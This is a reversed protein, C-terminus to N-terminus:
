VQSIVITKPKFKNIGKIAIAKLLWSDAQTIKMKPLKTLAKLV